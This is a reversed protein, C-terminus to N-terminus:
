KNPMRMEEVIASALKFVNQLAQEKVAAVIKIATVAGTAIPHNNSQKGMVFQGNRDMM